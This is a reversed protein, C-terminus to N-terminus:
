PLGGDGIYPKSLLLGFFPRHKDAMAATWVACCILSTTNAIACSTSPSHYVRLQPVLQNPLRTDHLFEPPLPHCEKDSEGIARTRLQVPASGCSRSINEPFLKFSTESLHGRDTILGCGSRGGGINETGTQEGPIEEANSGAAIVLM